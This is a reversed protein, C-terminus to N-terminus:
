QHPLTDPSQDAADAPITQGDALNTSLLTRLSSLGAELSRLDDNAATAEKGELCKQIYIKYIFKLLVIAIIIYLPISNEMRM